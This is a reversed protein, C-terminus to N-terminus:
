PGPITRELKLLGADCRPCTLVIVERWLEHNTENATGAWECVGCGLNTAGRVPSQRGRDLDNAM